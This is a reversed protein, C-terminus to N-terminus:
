QQTYSKSEGTSFPMAVLWNQVLYGTRFILIRQSVSDFHKSNNTIKNDSDNTIMETNPKYAATLLIEYSPSWDSPPLLLKSIIVM